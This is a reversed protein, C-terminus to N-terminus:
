NAIPNSAKLVAIDCRASLAEVRATTTSGDPRRVTVTTNSSVVHVNTLITDRAIFFGSGRGSSAEITVVAPSVRSVLDELSASAPVPPTPLDVADDVARPSTPTVAATPDPSALTPVPPKA